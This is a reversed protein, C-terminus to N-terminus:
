HKTPSNTNIEKMQGTVRYIVREAINTALDGFRELERAVRLREYSAAIEEALNDDAMQNIVKAFVQSYLKDVDNDQAAVMQALTISDSSYAQMAQRLMNLILDGMQKLEPLPTQKQRQQLHPIVKAIGKAQDGMRELDVIMNMVSVVARLDSAAPQQTVIVTFCKEETEFRVKNVVDDATHVQQALKADLQDLARLALLMEDEVLKGMHLVDSQLGNLQQIFRERTM